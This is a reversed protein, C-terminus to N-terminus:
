QPGGQQEAAMGQQVEAFTNNITDLASQEGADTLKQVIAESATSLMENQGAVTQLEKQTDMLQQVVNVQPFLKDLDGIDVSKAIEEVLYKMDVQSMMMQGFEPNVQLVNGM